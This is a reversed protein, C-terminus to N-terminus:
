TMGPTTPTGEPLPEDRVDDPLERAEPRRDEAVLPRVEPTQAAGCGMALLALVIFLKKM